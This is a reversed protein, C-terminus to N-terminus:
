GQLGRLLETALREAAAVPVETGADIGQRAQEILARARPTELVRSRVSELLLAHLWRHDQSRRRVALSGSRRLAAVRDRVHTWIAEVGEGTLASCTVVPLEHPAQPDSDDARRLVRLAQAFEGAALRARTKNDGDCKNVAVLDVLELVGRKIGQLEDGAGAIMVGLFFDTMEAVQTESQGVGVTEILVVDFGAAECLMMTERTRRAVGGLTGGSPSPRIFANPHTSLRVMRTRDGLISGGSISSSPDVALVAVHSGADALQMGLREIFTSKGAGPVGTVGVRTAGGIRPGLRRLLETAMSQDQARASEILSIARGLISRDGRVVGAEYDELTLRKRRPGVSPSALAAPPVQGAAKEVSLGHDPREGSM